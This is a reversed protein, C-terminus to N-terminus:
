YNFDSYATPDLNMAKQEQVLPLLLPKGNLDISLRKVARKSNEISRNISLSFFYFINAAKYSFTCIPLM